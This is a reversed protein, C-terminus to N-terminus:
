GIIKLPNTKERLAQREGELERILAVLVADVRAVDVGRKGGHKAGRAAIAVCERVSKRTWVSVDIAELTTTMDM